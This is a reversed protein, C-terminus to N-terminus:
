RSSAMYATLLIYLLIHQRGQNNCFYYYNLVYLNIWYAANWKCIYTDLVSNLLKLSSAKATKFALNSTSDLTDCTNYNYIFTLVTHIFYFGLLRPDVLGGSAPAVAVFTATLIGQWQPVWCNGYVFIKITSYPTSYTLTKSRRKRPFASRQLTTHHFSWDQHTWPWEIQHLLDYAGQSPCYFAGAKFEELNILLSIEGAPNDDNHETASKCNLLHPESAIIRPWGRM